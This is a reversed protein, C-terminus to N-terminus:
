LWECFRTTITIVFTCLGFRFLLPSPFWFALVFTGPKDSSGVPSHITGFGQLYCYTCSSALVYDNVLHMRLRHWPRHSSRLGQSRLWECPLHSSSHVTNPQAQQISDKAWGGSTYRGPCACSMNRRLGKRELPGIMHEDSRRGEGRERGSSFAHMESDTIKLWFFFFVSILLDKLHNRYCIPHLVVACLWECSFMGM